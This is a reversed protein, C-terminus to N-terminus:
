AAKSAASPSGYFRLLRARHSASFEDTLPAVHKCGELMELEAHPFLEKARALLRAGPFFVDDSAGFVLTPRTFRAFSEPRALPPMRLDLTFDRAALGLFDVWADDFATMMPELFRLLRKRSPFLRYAIMPLTIAKFLPWLSNVTIGAPVALALRDVREPAYAALKQAMFGGLSAGYVHARELGLADLVDVQWEGCASGEYSLRADITKPSQGLIDPAHIRFDDLLSTMASMMHASSTMAGHLLFLPPADVRGAVLVHTKGFRTEVWRGEAGRIRARFREYSAELREKAAASKFVKTM